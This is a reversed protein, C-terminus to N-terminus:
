WSPTKYCFERKLYKNRDMSIHTSGVNPTNAGEHIWEVSFDGLDGKRLVTLCPIVPSTHRGWVNCGCYNPLWCTQRKFAQSYRFGAYYLVIFMIHAAVYKM